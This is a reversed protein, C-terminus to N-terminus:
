GYAPFRNGFLQIWKGIAEEHLGRGDYTLYWGDRALDRATELRKVVEKRSKDDLYEDVNGLEYFLPLKALEAADRFFTFVSWPYDGLQGSFIKLALVELHFSAMLASHLRNWEKIMRILPKLTEGCEASKADLQNSHKRPRSPLWDGTNADPVSYHNTTGDNNISRSVPVIDVDPWTKYHLTVAQGNKRVNTIYEGLSDRVNQLVTQPSNGKIHKTWHLVVMMDLDAYGKLATGQSLSGFPFSDLITFDNNLLGVIRDKRANAIEAHNGTLSINELFKDFSYPVTYPM